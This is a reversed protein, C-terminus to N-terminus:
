DRVWSPMTTAGCMWRYTQLVRESINSWSFDDEMWQRGREGMAELEGSKADLLQRLSVILSGPEPECIWGCKKEVLKAWPTGTTTLVPVGEALSEAVTMGYNETYSPLVYADASRYLERKQDGYRADMFEVRLLGMSEAQQKLEPRFGEEDSGCIVLEWDEYTKYLQEWAQLLMPIGKVPHIRGFFLLRKLGSPNAQKVECSFSVDIGNPIVAVPQSLGANRIEQYEKDSTAHLCDASRLSNRQFVLWMARKKWKSRNLAWSALTGRPAALIKTKKNRFKAPYVNTMAWLSHTHYIDAEHENQLMAKLEDSMCLKGKAEHCVTPYPSSMGAKMGTVHLEVDVGRDVLGSCLAPVSYSPGSAEDAISPVFHLVRMKNDQTVFGGCCVTRGTKLM